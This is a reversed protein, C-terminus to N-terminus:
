RPPPSLQDIINIVPTRSPPSFGGDRLGTSRYIYLIYIYLFTPFYSLSWSCDGFNIIKRMKVGFFSLFLYSFSLFFSNKLFRFYTKLSFKSLIRSPELYAEWPMGVAHAVRQPIRFFGLYKLFQFSYNSYM